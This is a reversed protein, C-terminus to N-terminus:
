LSLYVPADWDNSSSQTEPEPPRNQKSAVAHGRRKLSQISNHVFYKVERWTRTSLVPEAVLCRDCEKKGPVKVLQSFDGFQRRVAAQEEESWLRKNRKQPKMGPPARKKGSSVPKNEEVAPASESLGHEHISPVVQATAHVSPLSTPYPPSSSHNLPTFSSMVPRSRDNLTTFASMMPASLTNLPTYTPVMSTCPTNFHTYSPILPPSTTDLPTYVSSHLMNTTNQGYFSSMSLSHNNDSTYVPSMLTNTSHHPTFTPVVQTDTANLPTFDSMLPHSTQVMNTNSSCFPTYSASMEPSFPSSERMNTENPMAMCCNLSSEQLHDPNVTTMTCVSTEETDINETQDPAKPSKANLDNKDADSRQQNNRRRLTQLTNHVYNKVDTWSRGGLDPEAAICANCAKKGPVKMRTIFDNLYRKVATQESESWPRRKLLPKQKTGDKTTSPRSTPLTKDMKLLEKSIEELLTANQSLRYCEESSKEVMGAVQDLERESLSMLQWSTAIQERVSSSLLAEPNRVGCEVAARRFCDLGRIFSPGETRAFLYPNTKSVGAQERNEVLLDISSVMRDTLLVLMNRGYQGELELRTFSSCLEMELKTSKRVQDASLVCTEGSTRQTYTKLFLRGINGVRRRNFLCVNALTAEGLKKWTSMTANEKLDKRAEEEEGTIFRHLKILDETVTSKDVDVKKAEQKLSCALAKRSFCESWKTDLLEIFMRLESETESDETMRSEGFAIEAARKLSYGIKSVLSITKFTSSTPDFGSVKKVGEVALEFRSPLCIEHLYKVTKDLENVALVFRGLERMKQAIYAFQSKDHDYKASLTNGYKCILPDLQIHRSIDDQHMIQIIEKCSGTLFESMPLLDSVSSCGTFRKIKEPSKQDGKRTKCTREHRWLDTKRYFALCYQCPLFDRVSITPKKLQNKTVIEGEVSKSVDCNNKCKGKDRIQDLLTQRVKSGKPFHMAHAVDPEEVHKNELHRAIQTFYSKCYVCLHKKYTEKKEKVVSIPKPELVKKHTRLSSRTPLRIETTKRRRLWHTKVTEKTESKSLVQDMGDANELMAGDTNEGPDNGQNAAKIENAKHKQETGDDVQNVIEETNKTLDLNINLTMQTSLAGNTDDASKEEERQNKQPISSDCSTKKSERKKGRVRLKKKHKKVTVKKAKTSTQSSSIRSDIQPDDMDQPINDKMAAPIGEKNRKTENSSTLMLTGSSSREEILNRQGEYRKEDITSAEQELNYDEKSNLALKVAMYDGSKVADRLESPSLPPGSLIEDEGNLHKQFNDLTMWDLNLDMGLSLTAQGKESKDNGEPPEQNEDCSIFLRPESDEKRKRRDDTSTRREWSPRQAEEAREKRERPDDAPRPKGTPEEEREDSDLSFGHSQSPRPADLQKTRESKEVEARQSPSEKSQKPIKEIKGILKAPKASSKDTVPAPRRPARDKAECNLLFKEFLNTSGSADKQGLAEEKTVEDEKAKNTTLTTSSSSSASSTSSSPVKQPAATGDNGKSKAKKHIASSDSSDSQLATDEKSKSSKSKQLGSEKQSGEAKKSKKDSILNKIGQLKVEWKGKKQRVKDELSTKEVPKAAAEASACDDMQSESPGESLDEEVPATAEDESTDIKREKKGKKKKKGEEGKDRKHKGGERDKDKKQKKFSAVDDLEEDSDVFRKKPEVRGGKPSSPPTQAAEEDDDTEPAPLPKLEDKRKDKKKKKKEKPPSEDEEERIRKKKKKKKIPEEKPLDKDSDSESDADFVDSKTPLLKQVPKKSEAERKAKLEAQHRKFALLVEHCDELHAEPEWTDDDSCYNKWRVRYLVEGEEVRMDIIREVEYVDEEEDQESEVPEVKDSDGEM